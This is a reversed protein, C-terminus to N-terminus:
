HAAKPVGKRELLKFDVWLPSANCISSYMGSIIGILLALTFTNITSGGLFYLAVLVFLVALVTNVSRTLTQWISRNVLDELSEGKARSRMNERIRDFIIITDNISYGIVTLIAAVFASDVELQFISFIGTVVLTDHILALVAAIGQKFEFRITIYLIMLISAIVLALLAKYTLERGIVPGVSENRLTTFQGPKALEALLKDMEEQSLHRTRLLFDKEGSQQVGRSTELGLAAVAERVKEVAVPQEYRIELISGGTFDIGLNLGRVALSILGPLIVALSILYWLRRLRIFHLSM